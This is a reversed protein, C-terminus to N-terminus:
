GAKKKLKLAAAPYRRVQGPPLYGARWMMRLIMQLREMWARDPSAVGLRRPSPTLAALHAAQLPTLSTADKGFYHRAAQQVGYVGPGMEVLNLYLELIRKKSALRELRWTIVAEQLKRSFSRRHDLFLNKVVQQSITSAGREVRRQTLNHLLARKIQRLDFGKHQFFRSDEAVVFAARIHRSIRHLPLFDSAGRGLQRQRRRGDALRIWQKPKGSVLKKVPALPSDALGRCSFPALDLDVKGAEMDALDLDLEVAAGVEGRLRMGRLAPVLPEPLALLTEQCSAPPMRLALRLRRTRPEFSGRAHLALQPLALRSDMLTWGGEPSRLLHLELKVRPLPVARAALRRHLLVLGDIQLDADLQHEEGMRYLALSGLVNARRADIGLRGLLPALSELSVDNLEARLVDRARPLARLAKAALPHPPRELQASLTIKGGGPARARLQAEVARGRRSAHAKLVQLALPPTTLRLEGALAAARTPKFGQRPDLDAAFSALEALLLPGVRLVSKGTVLRYRDGRPELHISESDLDLTLDGLRWKIQARGDHAYLAPLARSKLKGRRSLSTPTEGKAQQLDLAIEPRTLRVGRLQPELGEFGLLIDAREVRLQDGVRVGHLAIGPELTASIADLSVPLGTARSLAASTRSLTLRQVKWMGWLASPLAILVCLM